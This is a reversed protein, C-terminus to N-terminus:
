KMGRFLEGCLKVGGLYGVFQNSVNQFKEGGWYVSKSM